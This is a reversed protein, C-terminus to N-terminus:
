DSEHKVVEILKKEIVPTWWELYGARTPHIADAMYLARQVEDIDNFAQDTYLDIVSIGHKEAIEQLAAVMSAYTENEYYANTYFIVPCNWTKRAYTIIYEIAGCVTSTDFDQAGAASVTGLPKEQTADNTSLQCVFLDFSENPDVKQLRSIYSDVGADVLTTGSVAEKQYTTDNRKAIYEVFSTQLSSAGYTVSSGLYLIHKGALPSGPQSQVNEVAYTEANGPLKQFRINAMDSFPGWTWLYGCLMLWAVVFVALGGCVSLTITIKKKKSMKNQKPQPLHTSCKKM